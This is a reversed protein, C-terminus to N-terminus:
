AAGATGAVMLLFEFAAVAQATVVGNGIIRLQDTRSLGIAPDTVWGEPWMMLWEAFRASLRPNGKSSVETPSPAPRTLSEQRRIAPEYEGWRPTEHTLVHDTLQRSHGERREPAMGGGSADSAMPTPLLSGAEPTPRLAGTSYATAIGPLLLEDARAGSRAAHGGTADAVSPTPLLAAVRHPGGRREAAADGHGGGTTRGAAEAAHSGIARQPGAREADAVAGVRASRGALWEGGRRSAARGAGDDVSARGDGEADAADARHRGAVAPGGRGPEPEPQQRVANRDADAPYALVFVRERRHAAGVASAALCTWDADFGLDALDGLVAGLARLVPRPGDDGLDDPGPEVGRVAARASLLGRVNEILVYRPRLVAIAEAMYSWLGSRTGEGLGARRGAASVDQCPFGGTLVDVPPVAAWDVATIDGLNPVSPWHHALVRSAATDVESHWAMSSGPFLALAALDLGGAGSFLSGIRSM